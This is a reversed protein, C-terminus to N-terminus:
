KLGYKLLDLHGKIFFSSNCKINLGKVSYFVLYESEDEFNDIFVMFKDTIIPVRSYGFSAIKTDASYDFHEIDAESFTFSSYSMNHEIDIFYKKDAFTFNFKISSNERRMLSTVSALHKISEQTNGEEM